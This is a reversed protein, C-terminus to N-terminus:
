RRERRSSRGWTSCRRNSSVRRDLCTHPLGCRTTGCFAASAAKRRASGGLSGRAIPSSRRERIAEAAFDALAAAADGGRSLRRALVVADEIAMCGGQGLNPTTSHAADGILCTRGVSWGRRPPRDVIDGRIIATGSTSEVIQPWPAAWGRFADMVLAKEDAAHGGSPHNLTAFWYVRDGPLTMIGARRGRGWWEGTYGVSLTPPRPCVGRWCTYGAYRPPPEPGFIAPRVISRIGDAGILVDARDEHGNAFRVVPGDALNDVGTCEHGFKAVGAPLLAALTGVLEARHTMVLLPRLGSVRENQEATMTMLRRYGRDARFESVGLPQAVARVADGAGIADLARLANAWLSIGAGVETLEAAREYVSVDHGGRRLAIASALGALGCGVIIVKM